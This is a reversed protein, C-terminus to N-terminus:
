PAGDRATQIDAIPPYRFTPKRFTIACYRGPTDFRYAFAPKVTYHDVLASTVRVRSDGYVDGGEIREQVQILPMLPARGEERMRASPDYASAALSSELIKKLPPPGYLTVTSNLGSGWALVMLSGADIVHDSHNHTVFVQSLQDLRFGAKALQGAVGNPCDVLYLHSDVLIATCAPARLASPTPGGKTGLLIVRAQSPVAGAGKGGALGFAASGGLFIRRTPRMIRNHECGEM